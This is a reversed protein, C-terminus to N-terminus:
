IGCILSNMYKDKETQSWETHCDRPICLNESLWLLICKKLSTVWESPMKWFGFWRKAAFPFYTGLTWPVHSPFDPHCDRSCFSIPSTQLREIGAIPKRHCFILWSKGGPQSTLNAVLGPEKERICLLGSRQSLLTQRLSLTWECPLWPPSLLILRLDM